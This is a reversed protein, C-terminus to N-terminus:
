ALKSLIAEDSIRSEKKEKRRAKVVDRIKRLASLVIVIYGPHQTFRKVLGVIHKRFLNASTLNKWIFLLQNIEQMQQLQRKSFRLSTVSEHEHIVGADPEWLLSYGRKLARYALDVDEWYFKFLKEDMGGLKMWLDRRFVGSGGSVWFTEHVKKDVKGPKHVIFGGEFYGKAYGYGKEHLSVAFISQDYFHLLAKVLFNENVVVDTNLLVVLDGKASRAGTNVSASFGRNKKHKIIRVEPFNRKIFDVSDDLSADDVVILEKVSNKTNHFALVVSPLYKELLGRGNYNPIIVSAKLSTNGNDTM